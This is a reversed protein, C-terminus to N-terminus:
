FLSVRTKTTFLELAKTGVYSNGSADLEPSWVCVALLRPIVGAIGGGVGSKAPIGVRYAFNGVADYLGCSQMVANLRKTTRRPLFRQGTAPAVGENAFPLFARALDMCSMAIACQHFYADLVKDVPNKLNGHSVLFHAIARNLHGTVKEAKAVEADFAVDRNGSLARVTQLIARKASRENSMVVDTVVLAGANILPNRPIGHEYELQVLSNFRTGSPERGVRRWLMEGERGLALALMFVKSISQISFPEFADGVAYEEGEVTRVAMGFKRAEVRALPAIYTAVKGKGFDRRVQRDIEDLIRRYNM